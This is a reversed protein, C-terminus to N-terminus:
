VERNTPLTLHTYSVASQDTGEAFSLDEAAPEDVSLVEEPVSLVEEPSSSVVSVLPPSSMERIREMAQRVTDFPKLPTASVPEAPVASSVEDQTGIFGKQRGLPGRSVAQRIRESAAILREKIDQNEM